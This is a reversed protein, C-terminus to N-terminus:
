VFTYSHSVFTVEDFSDINSNLVAFIAVNIDILKYITQM